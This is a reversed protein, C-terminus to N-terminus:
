YREAVAVAEMVKTKEMGEENLGMSAIVPMGLNQRSCVVCHDAQNSM